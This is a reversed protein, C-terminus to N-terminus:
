VTVLFCSLLRATSQLLEQQLLHVNENLPKVAAPIEVVIQGGCSRLSEEEGWRVDSSVDPEM